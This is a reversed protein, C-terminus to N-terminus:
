YKFPLPVPDSPSRCGKIGHGNKETGQVVPLMAQYPPPPSLYRYTNPMGWAARRLIVIVRRVATMECLIPIQPVPNEKGYIM